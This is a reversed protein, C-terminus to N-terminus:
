KMAKSQMNRILQKRYNVADPDEALLSAFTGNLLMVPPYRWLGERARPKQSLKAYCGAILNFLSPSPNTMSSLYVLLKKLLGDILFFRDALVCCYQLGENTSLIKNLIFVSVTKSETSGIEIAKTCYRLAGNDMLFRVAAGDIPAKLMHALVGLAGLRLCELPKYTLDIDMLPFLYHPMEAKLFCGRTEPYHAICQFLLLINYARPPKGEQSHVPASIHPYIKVIEQLMMTMTCPSKWLLLPLIEYTNRHTVLNQLASNSVFPIENHLDNIWQIITDMDPFPVVTTTPAFSSASPLTLKSTSYDEYLSDPLNAM